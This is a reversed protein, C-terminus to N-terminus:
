MINTAEGSGWSDIRLMADIVCTLLMCKNQRLLLVVLLEGGVVNDDDDDDYHM